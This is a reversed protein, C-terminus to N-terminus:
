LVIFFFLFFSFYSGLVVTNTQVIQAFHKFINKRGKSSRGRGRGQSGYPQEEGGGEWGLPLCESLGKKDLCQLISLAVFSEKIKVKWLCIACIPEMLTASQPGSLNSVQAIQGLYSKGDMWQLSM